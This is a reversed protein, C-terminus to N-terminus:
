VGTFGSRVADGFSLTIMATLNTLYKSSIAVVNLPALTVAFPILNCGVGFIFIHAKFFPDEREKSHAAAGPFVTSM